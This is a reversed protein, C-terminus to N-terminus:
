HSCRHVIEFVSREDHAISTVTVVTLLRSAPFANDREGMSHVTMTFWVEVIVHQDASPGFTLPVDKVRSRQVRVREGGVREIARRQTVLQVRARRPRRPAGKFSHLSHRSKILPIPCQPRAVMAIASFFQRPRPFLCHPRPRAVESSISWEAHDRDIATFATDEILM